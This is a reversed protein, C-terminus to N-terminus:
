NTVILKPDRNPIDALAKDQVKLLVLEQSETMRLLYPHWRDDEGRRYYGSVAWGPTEAYVYTKGIKRNPALPDVIELSDSSLVTALLSRSARVVQEEQARAARPEPNTAWRYAFVAVAIGVALSFIVRGVRHNMTLRYWHNQADAFQTEM